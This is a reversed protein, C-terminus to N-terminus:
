HSLSMLSFSRRTLERFYDSCINRCFPPRHCVFRVLFGRFVVLVRCLCVVCCGLVMCFAIMHGGMLMRRVRVLVGGLRVSMRALSVLLRHRM